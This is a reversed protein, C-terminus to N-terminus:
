EESEKGFGNVECWRGGKDNLLDPNDIVNGIIKYNLVDQAFFRNFYGDKVISELSIVIANCYFEGCALTCQVIDGEYFDTNYLRNLEEIYQCVTEERIPTICGHIFRNDPDIYPYNKDLKSDDSYDEILSGYVWENQSNKARFVKQKVYFIM